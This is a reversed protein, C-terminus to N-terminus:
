DEDLLGLALRAQWLIQPKDTVWAAEEFARLKLNRERAITHNWSYVEWYVALSHILISVVVTAVFVRRWLGHRWIRDIAFGGCLALYPLADTSYRSGYSLIAHWARWSATLLLASILGILLALTLTRYRLEQHRLGVVAGYLCFLLFPSFILAGRNPSVLLGLSAKPLGGLNWGGGIIGQYGGFGPTGFYHMNYGVLFLAPLLGGLAYWISIRVGNRYAIWLLLPLVLAISQPRAAIMLGILLGALLHWARQRPEGVVIYLVAALCFQVPSHTWTDQGSIHFAATGLAYAITMWTAGRRSAFRRLCLFIFVASGATLTSATLKALVDEAVSPVELGLAVPLAFFPICFLATGPPWRSVWHGRTQMLGVQRDFKMYSDAYEDLDLNGQRLLSIAMQPAPIGDVMGVRASNSNYVVWIVLFLVVAHRAEILGARTSEDLRNWREARFSRWSCWVGAVLLYALVLSVMSWQGFLLKDPWVLNRVCLSAAVVVVPVVTWRWQRRTWIPVGLRRKALQGLAFLLGAGVALAGALGVLSHVDRVYPGQLRLVTYTPYWNYFSVHNRIRIRRFAGPIPAALEFTDDGPGLDAFAIPLSIKNEARLDDEVLEGNLAVSIHRVAERRARESFSVRLIWGSRTSRMEGPVTVRLGRETPEVRVREFLPDAAHRDLGLENKTVHLETRDASTRQTIRIRWAPARSLDLTGFLWWAAVAALLALLAVRGPSPRAASAKGESRTTM